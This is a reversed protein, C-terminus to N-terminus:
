NFDIEKVYELAQIRCVMKLVRFQHKRIASMLLVRMGSGRALPLPWM